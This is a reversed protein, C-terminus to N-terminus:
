IKTADTDDHAVFQSMSKIILTHTGQPDGNSPGVRKRAGSIM